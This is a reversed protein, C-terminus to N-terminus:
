PKLWSSSRTCIPKHDINADCNNMDTSRRVILLTELARSSLLRTTAILWSTRPMGPRCTSLTLRDTVNKITINEVAVRETWALRQWKVCRVYKIHLYSDDQHLNAKVENRLITPRGSIVNLINAFNSGAESMEFLINVLHPSEADILWFLQAQKTNM